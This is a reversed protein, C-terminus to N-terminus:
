WVEGSFYAGPTPPWFRSLGPGFDWVREPRGLLIRLQNMIAHEDYLSGSASPLSDFQSDALFKQYGRPDKARLSLLPGDLFEPLLPGGLFKGLKELFQGLDPESSVASVDSNVDVLTTTDNPTQTSHATDSHTSMSLPASAPDTLTSALPPTVSLSLASPECLAASDSAPLPATFVPPKYKKGKKNKKGKKGKTPKAKKYYEKGVRRGVLVSTNDEV